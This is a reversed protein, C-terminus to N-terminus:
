RSYEEILDWLIGATEATLRKCRMMNQQEGFGDLITQCRTAGFRDLFSRRFASALENVKTKDAGPEMRGYLCGLAIIGGTFAGCAEEHTGGMGGGFGTACRPLNEGTKGALAEVLTKSVAEACHFGSQFADFANKEIIERTM